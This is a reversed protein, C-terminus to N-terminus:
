VSLTLRESFLSVMVRFHNMAIILAKKEQDSMEVVDVGHRATKIGALYFLASLARNNQEYKKDHEDRMDALFRALDKDMIAHPVPRNKKDQQKVRKNIERMEARIEAIKNLGCLRQGANFNVTMDFNDIAM